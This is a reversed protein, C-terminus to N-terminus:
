PLSPNSVTTVTFINGQLPFNGTETIATNASNWSTVDAASSLAVGLTNGASLGGAIDIALTVEQTAGAAVQLNLGAFDIVGQNISNYQAIVQGGRVLYAGAMSSDSLVGTKHFKIESITAAGGTGATFNVSLVPVRAAGAGSSGTILSGAVPNDAALGVSLGTAVPPPPTTGGGTGGGTGGTSMSNVFARTKPGFYGAAPSIGNAAQFAALAAKTLGGFYGTAAVKLFGKSILFTQLSTVQAGKSGVTLDSTFNYSSSSGSTGLQAQLQQIQALLAAIQAQLDASTQANALPLTALGLGWIVTSATLAVSVIKKSM